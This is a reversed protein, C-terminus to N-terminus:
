YISVAANQLLYHDNSAYGYAIADSPYPNYKSEAKNSAKESKVHFKHMKSKGYIFSSFFLAAIGLILKMEKIIFLKILTM